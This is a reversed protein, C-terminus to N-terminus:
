SGAASSILRFLDSHSTHLDFFYHLTRDVKSLQMKDLYAIWKFLLQVVLHNGHRWISGCGCMAQPLAEFRICRGLLHEWNRFMARTEHVTSIAMSRLM